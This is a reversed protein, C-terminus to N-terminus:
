MRGFGRAMWELTLAVDGKITGGLGLGGGGPKGKGAEIMKLLEDADSFDDIELYARGM